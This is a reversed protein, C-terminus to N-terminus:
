LFPAKFAELVVRSTSLETNVTVTVEQKITTAHPIIVTNCNCCCTINVKLLHLLLSPLPVELLLQLLLLLVPWLVGNGLLSRM